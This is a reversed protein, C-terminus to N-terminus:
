QAYFKRDPTRVFDCGIFKFSFVFFLVLSILFLLFIVANSIDQYAMVSLFYISFSSSLHITFVLASFKRLVLYIFVSFIFMFSLWPFYAGQHIVTAGAEFMLLCWLILSAFSTAGFVVVPLNFFKKRYSFLLVCSAIFGIVFIIGMSYFFNFFSKGKVHQIARLSDEDLLFMKVPASIYDYDYVGEVVKKFNAVKASFIEEISMMTYADTLTNFFPKDSVAVQGALHWKTLRDGPPDIKKQYFIWPGFMLIAIAIAIVVDRLRPKFIFFSVIAIPILSFISGSHALMSIMALVTSLIIPTTKSGFSEINLLVYAIFLLSAGAVLKPWVFITNVLMVSSFALSTFVLFKEVGYEKFFLSLFLMLPVLCYAQLLMSTLQYGIDTGSFLKYYFLFQGTQLPPRDSSLWDGIMPSSLREHYVQDAFIKPLFNDIPLEHTFITAATKQISTLDGYAIAFSFLVIVYLVPILYIKLVYSSRFTSFFTGNFVSRFLYYVSILIILYSLLLGMNHSLYYVWFSLYYLCCLLIFILPAIIFELQTFKKIYFYSLGTIAISTIFFVIIFFIVQIQDILHHLKYDRTPISLGGWEKFSGGKDILTIKVKENEDIPLLIKQATWTEGPAPNIRELPAVVKGGVDFILQVNEGFYGATFIVFEGNSQFESTELTQIDADGSFCYTIRANLEIKNALHPSSEKECGGSIIIDSRNSESIKSKFYEARNSIAVLAIFFFLALLALIDARMDLGSSSPIRM